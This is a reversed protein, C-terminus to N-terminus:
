SIRPALIEVPAAKRIDGEDYGQPRATFFQDRSSCNGTFWGYRQLLRSQMIGEVEYEYYSGREDERLHKHVVPRDWVIGLPTAVKEAGSSQLSFKPKEPDKSHNIWDAENTLRVCVPLYRDQYLIAAKELKAIFAETIITEFPIDEVIEPREIREPLTVRNEEM